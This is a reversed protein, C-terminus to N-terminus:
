CVRISQILLFARNFLKLRTQLNQNNVYSTEDLNYKFSLTCNTTLNIFLNPGENGNGIHLINGENCTKISLNFIIEVESSFFIDASKYGQKTNELSSYYGNLSLFNLFLLCVLTFLSM